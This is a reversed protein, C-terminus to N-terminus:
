FKFNDKHLTMFLLDHFKGDKLSHDKYHGEKIFGIADYMKVGIKNFEYVELTIKRLGLNDFAYKILNKTAETGFGSGQFEPLLAISLEARQNPWNFDSLRIFGAPNDSAKDVILLTVNRKRYEEDIWETVVATNMPFRKALNRRVEPNNFVRTLFVADERELVALGCKNGNIFNVYDRAM